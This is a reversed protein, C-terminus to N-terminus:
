DGKDFDEINYPQVVPPINTDTYGLDDKELDDYPGSWDEPAASAIIGLETWEEFSMEDVEGDFYQIEISGEDEDMAVVKFQPGEPSQFWNGIVPSVESNM